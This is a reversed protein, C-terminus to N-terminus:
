QGIRRVGATDDVISTAQTAMGAVPKVVAKAYPLEYDAPLDRIDEIVHCATVPLGARRLQGKQLDKDRFLAVTRPPIARAGLAQGLMAASMLAMDDHAYVADFSGEGFGARYLGTLVAEPNKQDDVFLTRVGAPLPMGWDKTGGGYVITIDLGRERTAEVAQYDSGIMLLRQAREM